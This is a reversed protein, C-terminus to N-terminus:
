EKEPLFVLITAGLNEGDSEAAIEGGHAQFIKRAISLGFGASDKKVGAYGIEFVQELCDSRIGIGNDRIFVNPKGKRTCTGVEVRLPEDGTKKYKFCNEIIHAFARGIGDPDGHIKPLPSTFIIESPGKGKSIESFLYRILHSLDIEEKYDVSRGAMSLHFLGDIKLTLRRTIDIIKELYKDTLSKDEMIMTAFGNILTIPNKLDHGLRSAFVKLERNKELIQKEMLKRGTIDRTISQIIGAERSIICSSIEVYIENEDSRRFRSEFLNSGKTKTEELNRELEGGAEEFGLSQITRGVLRPEKIKLMECTRANVHVIKGDFDHIFIADNSQEFLSRFREESKKLAEEARKKDEILKHHQLAQEIVSPMLELYGGDIDKIIYDSAGLKMAEVAMKADSSGTVMITPPFKGRSSLIKLVETGNYVPMKIDLVIIDYLCSNIKELGKEGDYAIDVDYGSRELKRKFLLASGRDDEMYLVKIPEADSM